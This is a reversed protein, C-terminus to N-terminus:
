FEDTAFVSQVSDDRDACYRAGINCSRCESASPNRVPVDSSSCLGLLQKADREVDPLRSMDVEDVSRPYVVRGRSEGDSQLRYLWAYLLVQVHDSDRALGTKCDEFVTCDAVTYRLDPKGSVTAIRGRITLPQEVIPLRHEERLQRARSRVLEDHERTWRVLDFSPALREYQFRTRFWLSWKCSSEGAILKTLWTVWVYVGERAVANSVSLFPASVASPKPMDPDGRPHAVVMESRQAVLTAHYISCVNELAFFFRDDYALITPAAQPSWRAEM